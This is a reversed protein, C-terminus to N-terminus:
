VFKCKYGHYAKGLNIHRVLTSQNAPLGKSKLYQVCKGISLFLKSNNNANIEVLLVSKSLNSLSKNINFKVRDKELMLALDSVSIEKTRATLVPKRTFLYRGLYYTGNKLHKNFTIYHINLNLIFDKQQMSYYYLISKDRNYMYLPKANSGSPNNAVKVTNLNFSPDLLYYQELVIESKFKSSSSLPIVELSFNFLKEKNLLPILLGTVRHKEKLYGDLRIALQSCSGVYKDGTVKHKFIYIGPIQIKGSPSGIREKLTKMTEDKDLNNLVFGTTKVLYKLEIETIRINCYALIDNIIDATVPKGSKLHENALKHSHKNYGSRGLITKWISEDKKPPKSNNSGNNSSFKCKFTLFPSISNKWSMFVFIHRMLNMAGLLSSIGSLHLAFIALDVSPGSHSQVSSLPPYCDFFFYNNKWINTVENEYKIM